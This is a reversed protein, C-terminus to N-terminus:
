IYKIFVRLNHIKNVLFTKRHSPAKGFATNGSLYVDIIENRDEIKMSKLISSLTSEHINDIKIIHDIVKEKYKDFIERDKENLENLNGIILVDFNKTTREILGLLNKIEISDSKREIDDFCIIIHKNGIADWKIDEISFSNIYNDISVGLFKDSMDNVFTKAVRIMGNDENIKKLGPLSHILISKEIDRVSDKGFVSTYVLEYKDANESFYNEIFTTKGIGWVGDIFICARDNFNKSVNGFVRDLAKTAQLNNM